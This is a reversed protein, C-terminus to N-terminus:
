RRSFSDTNNVAVNNATSSILSANSEVEIPTKSLGTGGNGLQGAQGSGWAYVNGQTSIAYTTPGGAAVSEYTVGAPESIQLPTAFEGRKGNGLQYNSGDGWSWVEFNSLLVITHGNTPTSGGQSVARVAAPLDVQVPVLSDKSISGNGLNGQTDAGWDFYEGNSLLAGGNDFASVLTTVDRGDLGSVKVPTMSAGTRGDGLEGDYNEGCSYVTGDADFTDHSGAGALSTVDSFPLEEPKNSARSNGLCLQGRKNLGWGWAHGNTDVALGTDYPMADTPIYAIRVGAPFQVQVPSTFSNSDSGDGLEGNTGQGWAWLTGNTLLAYQTSNSTGIQSVQGPLSISAPSLTRDGDSKSTDGFYTGWHEIRYGSPPQAPAQPQSQASAATAVVVPVGLACLGLGVTLPRRIVALLAATTRTM